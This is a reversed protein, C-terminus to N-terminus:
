VQPRVSPVIATPSRLLNTLPIACTPMELPITQHSWAASRPAAICDANLAHCIARYGKDAEIMDFIRRVVKAEAEDLTWV